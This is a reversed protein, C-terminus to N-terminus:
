VPVSDKERVGLAVFDSVFSNLKVLVAEGVGDHVRSIVAVAVNVHVIESDMETLQVSVGVCVMVGGGVGVCVAVEVSSLLTEM